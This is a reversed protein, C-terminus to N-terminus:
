HLATYSQSSSHKTELDPNIPRAIFALLVEIYVLYILIVYTHMLVNVLMLIQRTDSHSIRPMLIGYFIKSDKAIFNFCKQNPFETSLKIYPYRDDIQIKFFPKM